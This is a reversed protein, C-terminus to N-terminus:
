PISQFSRLSVQFVYVGSDINYVGSNAETQSNGVGSITVPQSSIQTVRSGIMKVANKTIVFDSCGNDFFIVFDNNDIRVRQLLYIGRDNCHENSIKFLSIERAFCPLLPSRIFRQIFNQLLEKNKNSSKHEECLLVHTQVPHRQHSPHACTFYYQCKGDAYKGLSADAGPYLCQTCFGKNKLLKFREAPTKNVFDKCTYYQIIRTGKPGNTSVHDNSGEHANCISYIAPTSSTHFSSGYRKSGSQKNSDEKHKTDHHITLLKKQENVKREKILFNIMRLWTQKPSLDEECTESIFKTSRRDGILHNIRAMSEGYYLHEEVKHKEALSAVERMVNVLNSIGTIIKEPDKRNLDFNKLQQLRRSLMMKPDGFAERLREWVEDISTLNSVM